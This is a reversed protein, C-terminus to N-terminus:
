DSMELLLRNIREVYANPDALGSGAALRAQDLLIRTLDAFRHEDAEDALREVLPHGPNIEFVPKAEPMDQGSAELLRRMQPGPDNEATVLCAPSSVLRRSVNVAEVEDRLVRRIKKLLPKHEENLADTTVKDDSDPLALEGRAVDSFSKGDFETLHGTLWADLRDVLLLVEIDRDKLAELHPSKRAAALSDAVVYYISDQGEAMAEVYDALSRTPEEGDTRTSYFRLLGAIRERNQPDEVIGEKLVEGFEGYFTKFDDPSNKALKGIMDLVRRTLASRMADLEPHAQLIERSVNLPLDSADVIGRVFRLYLPLFQEVNDMIFVRQVYLKLGRPAERNWLDFPARRPLYLLSTYERRGEVKNHSHTLPPEFDHSLHQYFEAYEDDTVDNRPRLWLATASNLTEPEKDADAPDHLRVAFAIHDSYKRVLSRLRLPDAFERADDKLHLVIKTGRPASTGAISFEGDGDSEWLTASAEDTGARRTTVVVRKAVIFASYFGVGFQGIQQATAKDGAELQRVFEATGSRAITGLNEVVEDRTMGIGNDIITLTGADADPILDIKLESDDAILEPSALAEFRLKDAADSANSILERLFIEPSSYLSHIMLHLLQKVETEFGRTERETTESM